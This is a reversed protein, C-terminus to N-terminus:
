TVGGGHTLISFADEARGGKGPNKKGRRDGTKGEAATGEEGGQQWAFLVEGHVKGKKKWDKKQRKRREGPLDGGSGTKKTDTRTLGIKLL